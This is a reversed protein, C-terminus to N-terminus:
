LFLTVRTYTSFADNARHLGETGDNLVGIIKPFHESKYAGFVATVRGV